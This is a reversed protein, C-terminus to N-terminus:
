WNWWILLMVIGITRGFGGGGFLLLIGFVLLWVPSDDNSKSTSSTSSNLRSSADNVPYDSLYSTAVWFTEGPRDFNEVAGWSGLTDLVLIKSNKPLKFAIPANVDPEERANLMEATVYQEKPYAMSASSILTLSLFIFLWLVRSFSMLSM